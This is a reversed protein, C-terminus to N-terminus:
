DWGRCGAKELCWKRACAFATKGGRHFWSQAQCSSGLWESSGLLDKMVSLMPLPALRAPRALIHQTVCLWSHSIVHPSHEKRQKERIEGLKKNKKKCLHNSETTMKFLSCSLRRQGM